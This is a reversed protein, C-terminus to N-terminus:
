AALRYFEKDLGNQILIQRIQKFRNYVTARTCSLREATEAEEYRDSCELTKLHTRILKLLSDKDAVLSEVKSVFEKWSIMEDNNDDCAIHNTLDNEDGYNYDMSSLAEDQSMLDEPSLQSALVEHVSRESNECKEDVFKWYIKNTVFTMFSANKTQDFQMIADIFLPYIDGALDIRLEGLRMTMKSFDPKIRYFLAVAHDVMKEGLIDWLRSAVQECASPNSQAMEVLALIKKYM